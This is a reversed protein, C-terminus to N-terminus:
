LLPSHPPIGLRRRPSAPWGPQPSFRRHDVGTYLVRVYDGPLSPFARLFADRNHECVVLLRRFAAHLGAGYDVATSGPYPPLGIKLLIPRPRDLRRSLEDLVWAELGGGLLTVVLHTVQEDEVRRLLRPVFDPTNLASFCFHERRPTIAHLAAGDPAAVIPRHGRAALAATMRATWIEGGGLGRIANLFLPRFTPRM